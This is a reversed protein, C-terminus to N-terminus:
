AGRNRVAYDGRELISIAKVAYLLCDNLTVNAVDPMEKSPNDLMMMKYPKLYYLAEDVDMRDHIPKLTERKADFTKYEDAM